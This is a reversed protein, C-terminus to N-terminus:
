PQIVRGSRSMTVLYRPVQVPSIVERVRDVPQDPDFGLRIITSRTAKRHRVKVLQHLPRTHQNCSPRRAGSPIPTRHMGTEEAQTTVRVSRLEAVILVLSIPETALVEAGGIETDSRSDSVSRKM